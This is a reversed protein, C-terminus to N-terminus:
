RIEKEIIQVYLAKFYIWIFDMYSKCVPVVPSVFGALSAYVAKEYPSFHEDKILRYVVLRWIDRNLNGENKFVEHQQGSVKVRNYMADSHAYNEDSFYKFGELTAARWSQGVKFCFDRASQTDGARVFAFIYEMLKYEDEQDLDHM